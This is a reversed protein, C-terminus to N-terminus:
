ADFVMRATLEDMSAGDYWKSLARFSTSPITAVIAPFGKSGKGLVEHIVADPVSDKFSSEADALSRSANTLVDLEFKVKYM